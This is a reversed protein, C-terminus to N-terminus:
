QVSSYIGIEVRVSHNKVLVHWFNNMLPFFLINRVELSWFTENWWFAPQTMNVNVWPKTVFIFLEYRNLHLSRNAGPKTKLDSFHPAPIFSNWLYLLIIYLNSRIQYSMDKRSVEVKTAIACTFLSPSKPSVVEHLGFLFPFTCTSSFQRGM